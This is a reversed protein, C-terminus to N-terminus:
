GEGAGKPLRKPIVGPKEVPEFVPSQVLDPGLGIPIVGRGKGEGERRDGSLDGPGPVGRFAIEHQPTQGPLARAFPSIRVARAQAGEAEIGSQKKDGFGGVGVAGGPSQFFAQLAARQNRREGRDFDFRREGRATETEGRL